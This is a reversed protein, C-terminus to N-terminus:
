AGKPRVPWTFRFVSGEGARSDVFVEGGESEVIKKVLALGVGTGEVKDRAALTQFIVFIKAHYSPDIGPGNDAVSFEFMGGGVDRCAIRVHPDPRNAHKIANGILNLFVQQLKHRAVLLQPMECTIEVRAAAPPALLDITEQVMRTIDILQTDTRGRGARSYQLIGNILGEMRAVRGRLLKLMRQIDPTLAAEGLDEELWQSLNGIGRLPARLDHSTVYAFQSLEENSRRLQATVERLAEAGRRFQLDDTKRDTVDVHIVVAGGEPRLLPSAVMLYWRQETPSDCPYEYQFVPTRRELVERLGAAVTKGDAAAAGDAATCIDLYNVGVDGHTSAGNEHGFSKWARNVAIIVGGADLVAVHAPLSAFANAILAANEILADGADATRPKYAPSTM